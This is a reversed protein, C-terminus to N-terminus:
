NLYKHFKKGPHERLIPMPYCAFSARETNLQIQTLQPQFPFHCAQNQSMKSPKLVRPKTGVTIWFHGFVGKKPTKVGM